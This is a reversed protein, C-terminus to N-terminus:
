DLDEISEGLSAGAVPEVGELKAVEAFFPMPELCSEPSLVGTERIEGRLITLAAAALPGTTTAWDGVPWCRYRTRRGHKTGLAEVWTVWGSECGRPVPPADETPTTASELFSIAADSKGPEGRAVHRGLTCYIENLQLPFVSVLTSVSRVDRLTRPVTIPEPM